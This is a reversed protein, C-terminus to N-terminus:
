LFLWDIVYIILLVNGKYSLTQALLPEKLNWFLHSPNSGHPVQVSPLRSWIDLYPIQMMKKHEIMVMLKPYNVCRNKSVLESFLLVGVNYYLGERRGCEWYM